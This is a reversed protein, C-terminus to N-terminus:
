QLVPTDDGSTPLVAALEERDDTERSVDVLPQDEDVHKDGAVGRTNELVSDANALLSDSSNDVPGISGVVTEGSTVTVGDPASGVASGPTSDAGAHEDPVLGSLASGISEDSSSVDETAAPEADVSIAPAAPDVPTGLPGYVIEAWGLHENNTPPATDAPWGLNSSTTM